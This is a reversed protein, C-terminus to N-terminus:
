SKDKFLWETGDERTRAHSIVLNRWIVVVEQCGNCLLFYAHKVISYPVLICPLPSVQLLKM